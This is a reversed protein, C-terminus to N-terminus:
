AVGSDGAPDEAAPEVLTAEFLIAGCFECGIINKARMRQLLHPRVVMHCSTCVTGNVQAMARAGLKRLAHEYTRLVPAPVEGTLSKRHELAKALADEDGKFRGRTEEIEADVATQETALSEEASSIKGRLAEAQEMKDLVHDEAKRVENTAFHIENRFARYQENTKAESMQTQLRELKQKGIAIEGELRRREKESEELAAKQAALDRKRAELKKEIEAIHRPLASLEKRLAGIKQDLQHLHELQALVSDM